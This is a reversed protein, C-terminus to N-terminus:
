TRFKKKLARLASRYIDEASMHYHVALEEPTGSQGFVDCLGIREIPVPDNQSLLEAIAGGLGGAIQHSEATVIAGCKKAAAIITKEDLPKVSPSNVVMARIGDKELLLAAQLCEYVIPGAGILAVDNGELLISAKGIEFPTAPLTFLPTENREFRLYVPGEYDIAAKVAKETEIADGPVLVVMNPLVRMLALDETMEHTAGDGGASLGAHSSFIKADLNQLAITTRIQEWNRAPSFAAFTEVVPIAGALALGAGIGVMAQESVGFQLFRDPYAKAFDTARVSETVDACLVYLNQHRKGAELLGFGAGDRTSKLLVTERHKWGRQLPSPSM